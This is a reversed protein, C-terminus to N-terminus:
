KASPHLLPVLPRWDRRLVEVLSPPTLLEAPGRSPRPTRQTYAGPSWRFLDSGLVLWPERDHLVFSGDPLTAM